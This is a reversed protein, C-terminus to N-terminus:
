RRWPSDVPPNFFELHSKVQDPDFEGPRQFQLIVDTCGWKEDNSSIAGVVTDFDFETAPILRREWKAGSIKVATLAILVDGKQIVGGLRDANGGEVLDVVFVGNNGAEIEEFVIGLPKTLSVEYVGKPLEFMEPFAERDEDTFPKMWGNFSTYFKFQGKGFNNGNNWMGSASISYLQSSKQQQQQQQQWGTHQKLPAFGMVNWM